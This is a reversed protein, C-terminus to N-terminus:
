IKLLLFCVIGECLVTNTTFTAPKSTAKLVSTMTVVATTVKSSDGNVQRYSIADTYLRHLPM